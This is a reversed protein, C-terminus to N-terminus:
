TGLDLRLHRLLILITVAAPVATIAQDPGLIAATIGLASAVDILFNM